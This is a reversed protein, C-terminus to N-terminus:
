ENRSLVQKAKENKGWAEYLSALRQRSLEAVGPMPANSLIADSQLLLIEAEEYRGLSALAAGEVAGRPLVEAVLQHYVKVPIM